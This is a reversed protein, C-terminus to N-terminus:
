RSIFCYPMSKNSSMKNWICLLIIFLIKRQYRKKIYPLDQPKPSEGDWNNNVGGNQKNTIKATKGKSITKKFRNKVLEVITEYTEDQYAKEVIFFKIEDSLLRSM